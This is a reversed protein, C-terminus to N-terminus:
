SPSGVSELTRELSRDEWFGLYFAQATVWVQTISAVALQAFEAAGAFDWAAEVGVSVVGAVASVVLAFTKKANQSWNARKLFSIVLPLFFGITANIWTLDFVPPVAGGEEQAFAPLAFLVVLAALAVVVMWWRRLKTM